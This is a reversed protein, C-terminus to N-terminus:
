MRDVTPRNVNSEKIHGTDSKLTFLEGYEVSGCTCFVISLPYDAVKFTLLFVFSRSIIQICVDDTFCTSDTHHYWYSHTGTPKKHRMQTRKLM